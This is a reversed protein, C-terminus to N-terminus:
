ENTELKHIENRLATISQACAELEAELVTHRYFAQGLSEYLKYLRRQNMEPEPVPFTPELSM